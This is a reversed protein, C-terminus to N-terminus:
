DRAAFSARSNTARVNASEHKSLLLAATSLAPSLAAVVFVATWINFFDTWQWPRPPHYASEAGLMVVWQAFQFGLFLANCCIATIKVAGYTKTQM